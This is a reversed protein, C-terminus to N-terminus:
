QYAGLGVLLGPATANIPTPSGRRRSRTSVKISHRHLLSGRRFMGHRRLGVDGAHPIEYHLRDGRNNSKAFPLLNGVGLVGDWVGHAAPRTIQVGALERMQIVRPAIKVALGKRVLARANSKSLFETCNAPDMTRCDGSQLVGIRKAM